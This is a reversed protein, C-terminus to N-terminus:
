IGMARRIEALQDVGGIRRVANVIDIELMEVGDIELRYYRVDMTLKFPSNTGPKLDGYDTVTLLGGMTAIIPTASFDTASQQGPRMVFREQRGLKKALEPRWESFTMEASMAEMGMDVGVPADMGSGRHAETQIKPQPLKAESCLGFYSVGDVFANFNKIFKPMSM